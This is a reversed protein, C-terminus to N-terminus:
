RRDTATTFRIFLIMTSISRNLHFYKGKLEKVLRLFLAVPVKSLRANPVAWLGLEYRSFKDCIGWVDIGMAGRLKEHGDMCWEENPGASFLAKRIIKKHGSRRRRAEAPDRARQLAQIVM